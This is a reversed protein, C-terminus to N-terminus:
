FRFTKYEHSCPPGSTVHLEAPKTMVMILSNNTMGRMPDAGPLRHRCVPFEDSDHSGLAQQIRKRDVPGDPESLRRDLSGLRCLSHENSARHLQRFGEPFNEPDLRDTNALPHNTHALRSGGTEPLFRQVQNPSCEYDEVAGADALMYNIGSAHRIDHLFRRASDLDPQDILGRAVLMAPLGGPDYNLKIALTNQCVGLPSNNLGCIGVLGPETVVYAERDSDPYRVHLLTQLGNYMAPTDLNQALLTPRGDAAPVGISSCRDPNPGSAFRELQGTSFWYFEDQLQFAWVVAFDIAAGEAIGTIEELLDPTWRRAAAQHGTANLFYTCVQELTPGGAETLSQRGSDFLAHIQTRMQEGHMRGRQRPSGSLEVLHMKFPEM